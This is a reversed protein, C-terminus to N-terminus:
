TGGERGGLVAPVFTQAAQLSAPIGIDIFPADFIRGELGGEDALHPFLDRELSFAGAPCRDLLERRMAYVGGNILGRTAPGAQKEAFGVITEGRTTVSGYRGADAEERLSLRALPPEGPGDRVLEALSIDFLSDGNLLVFREALHPRAHILAGGTGLPEPEVCYSLRVGQAALGAVAAEIQPALYGCLFVAERVGQRLVAEVLWLLFPRGGVQMLPKPSADTLAGLRAGRGGVLFVAQGLGAGGFGMGSITLPTREAVPGVRGDM